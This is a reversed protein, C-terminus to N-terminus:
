AAETAEAPPAVAELLCGILSVSDHGEAQGRFNVLIRHRLVPEALAKVDEITAAYRGRLLARARAGLILYQSARPGAGWEM